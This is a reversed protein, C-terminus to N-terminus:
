QAAVTLHLYGKYKKPRPRYPEAKQQEKRGYQKMIEVVKRKMNADM